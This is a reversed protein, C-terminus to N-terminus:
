KNYNVHIARPNGSITGVNSTTANSPNYVVVNAGSLFYVGGSVPDYVMSSATASLVPLLSNSTYNFAYLSSSTGILYQDANFQIACTFPIGSLERLEFGPGNTESYIRIVGSGNRNGLMIASGASREFLEVVEMDSPFSTEAIGSFFFPTLQYQNLSRDKELVVVREGIVWSRLPRHTSITNANFQNIGNSNFGRINNDEQCVYTIRKSGNYQADLFFPLNTNGLNPYSWNTNLDLLSVGLLDGNGAGGIILEQSFSNLASAGYDMILNQPTEPALISDFRNLFVNSGNETIAVLGTFRLPLENVWISLFLNEDNNGDTAFINLSHNGTEITRDSIVLELGLESSQQFVDSSGSTGFSIGNKLLNMQVREVEVNDTVRIRLSITDGYNFSSGNQYLVTISPEEEDTEKRCSSFVALISLILLFRSM